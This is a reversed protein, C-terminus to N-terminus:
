HRTLGLARAAHRCAELAFSPVNQEASSPEHRKRTGIANEVALFADGFGRGPSRAMRHRRRGPANLRCVPVGHFPYPSFPGYNACDSGRPSRATRGTISGTGGPM